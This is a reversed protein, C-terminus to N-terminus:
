YWSLQQKFLDPSRLVKFLLFIVTVTKRFFFENSVFGIMHAKFIKRLRHLSYM